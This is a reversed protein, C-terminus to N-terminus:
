EVVYMKFYALAKEIETITVAWARDKASRDGPKEAQLEALLDRMHVLLIEEVPTDM